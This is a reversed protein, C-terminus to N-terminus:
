FRTLGLLVRFYSNRLQNTRTRVMRIKPVCQSEFGSISTAACRQRRKLHLHVQLEAAMLMQLAAM